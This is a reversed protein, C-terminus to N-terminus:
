ESKIFTIDVSTTDNIPYTWTFPEMNNYVLDKFVEIDFESIQVEVKHETM